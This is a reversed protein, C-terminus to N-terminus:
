AACLPSKKGVNQSMRTEKANNGIYIINGLATLFM